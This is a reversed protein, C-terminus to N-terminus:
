WGTAARACSRPSLLAPKTSVGGSLKSARSSAASTWSAVAASRDAKRRIKGGAPRSRSVPGGAGPERRVLIRCPAPHDDAATTLATRSGPDDHRHRWGRPNTGLGPNQGGAAGSDVTDALGELRTQILRRLISRLCSIRAAGCISGSRSRDKRCGTRCRTSSIARFCTRYPSSFASSSRSRTFRSRGARTTCSSGTM